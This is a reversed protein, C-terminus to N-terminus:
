LPLEEASKEIWGFKEKFNERCEKCIWYRLDETCYFTCESDATVKEWCFDCHEHWFMRIKEGELYPKSDPFAKVHTEADRLVHQFFRNKEAYARKWFDPFVIKYLVANKLYEEQGNLRWDEMTFDERIIKFLM